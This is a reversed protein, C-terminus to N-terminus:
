TVALTGPSHFRIRPGGLQVTITPQTPLSARASENRSGRGATMGENQFNSWACQHQLPSIPNCSASTTAVGRVFIHM